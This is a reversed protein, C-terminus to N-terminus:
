TNYAISDPMTVLEYETLPKATELNEWWIVKATAYNFAEDIDASIELAVDYTRYGLFRNSEDYFAIVIVGKKM